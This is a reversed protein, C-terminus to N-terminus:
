YKYDKMFPDFSQVFAVNLQTEKSIILCHTLIDHKCTNREIHLVQNSWRLGRLVMM